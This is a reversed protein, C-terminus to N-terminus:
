AMWKDPLTLHKKQLSLFLFLLKFQVYLFLKSFKLSCVQFRGINAFYDNTLHVWILPELDVRPMNEECYNDQSGVNSVDVYVSVNTSTLNKTDSTVKVPTSYTNIGVPPTVNFDNETDPPAEKGFNSVLM